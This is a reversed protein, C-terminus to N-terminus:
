ESAKLLSKFIENTNKLYKYDGEGNIFGKDFVIIRDCKQLSTLRHSVLIITKTKYKHFINNIIKLENKADIASLAEDLILLSSSEYLGRSIAIRQRQGGSLKSGKEGIISKYEQPLSNIFNHIEAIKASEIIKRTNLNEEPLGYCINHNIDNDSLIIDQPVYSIDKQWKNLLDQNDLINYGDVLLKGSKPELLGILIKIFSSKGSGSPGVIGIKEGRNIILNKIEIKYKNVPDYSFFLDKCQILSKKIYKEKLRINSKYKLKNKNDKMLFNYIKHFSAEYAKIYGFGNFCSQLPILLKLIGLGITGLFTLESELSNQQSYIISSLCILLILFLSEIIYKPSEVKIDIKSAFRKSARNVRNFKEKFFKYRNKIKIFDINSLTEKSVQITEQHKRSLQKGDMVLGAKLFWFIFFYILALIILITPTRFPYLTILYFSIFIVSVGNVLIKILGKLYLTVNDIDKTLYSLLISSNTNIHWIYPMTLSKKYVNLGLDSGIEACVRLSLFLTLCRIITTFLVIFIIILSLQFILNSDKFFPNVRILNILQNNSLDKQIIGNFFPAILSINILESLATIISVFICLIIQLKRKLSILSFLSLLNKIPKTYIM